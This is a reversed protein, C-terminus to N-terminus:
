NWGNRLKTILPRVPEAAKENLKELRGLPYNDMAMNLMANGACRCTDDDPCDEDDAHLFSPEIAGEDYMFALIDQAMYRQLREARWGDILERIAAHGGDFADMELNSEIVNVREADLLGELKAM